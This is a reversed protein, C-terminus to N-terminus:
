AADFYKIFAAKCVLLKRGHRITPFDERHFLTYVADKGGPYGAKILTRPTILDPLNNFSFM